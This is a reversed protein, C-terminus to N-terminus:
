SRTLIAIAQGLGKGGLVGDSGKIFEADSFGLHSAWVNIASREVFSNLHPLMTTARQVEVTDTFVKWHRPDAFELFSFILKGKPKLARCADEIYLYSEHHLLHTFVSFACIMDTSANAVPISLERHLKFRYHPPCKEAAYDLLATVIDTGLYDIQVAATALAHALRGSGCGIDVLSMGDKLGAYQVINREIEGIERYGGGVARAMAEDRPYTKLLHAVLRDYDEVFHFQAV